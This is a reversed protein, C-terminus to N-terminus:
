QVGNLYIQPFPHTFLQQYIETYAIYKGYWYQEDYDHFAVSDQWRVYINRIDEVLKSHYDNFM